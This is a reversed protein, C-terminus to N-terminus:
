RSSEGTTTKSWESWAAFMEGYEVEDFEDSLALAAASSVWEITTWMQDLYNAKRLKRLVGVSPKRAGVLAAMGVTVGDSTTFVFVPEGPYELQWDFEPSGPEIGDNSAPAESDTAEPADDVTDEVEDTSVEDVSEIVKAAKTKSSM